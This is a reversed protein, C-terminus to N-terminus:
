SITQINTEVSFHYSYQFINCIIFLLKLTQYFNCGFKYLHLISLKRVYNLQMVYLM